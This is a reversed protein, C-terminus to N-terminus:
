KFREDMGQHYALEPLMVKIAVKRNLRLDYGLYVAAMGGRGIEGRVEYEGITAARLQALLKDQSATAARGEASETQPAGCEGCFRDGSYINAGCKACVTTTYM